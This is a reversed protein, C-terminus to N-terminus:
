FPYAYYPYYSAGYWGWPAGYGYGITISFGGHGTCGYYWGCSYRGLGWPSYGYGYSGYGYSYNDYDYPYAGYGDYQSYGDEVYYEDDYGYGDYYGYDGGHYPTGYTTCGAIGLLMAALILRRIM